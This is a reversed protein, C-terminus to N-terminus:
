VVNRMVMKYLSIIQNMVNERLYTNKVKQINWESALLRDKYSTLNGIAEIIADSSMKEIVIGGKEELMDKNAGVDTAICPLGNAMAETLSLSFGETYSPFLYLDAKALFQGVSTSPVAGAMEVNSPIILKKIEDNVPGVLTFHIDPLKCAAEIIEACGKTIQVHGVFVIEKIQERIEHSDSVCDKEIFNPVIRVTTNTLNEVFNYSKQNLVLVMLSMNAMSKLLKVGYRHVIQDEINCHCHLM